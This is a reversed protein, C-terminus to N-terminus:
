KQFHDKLKNLSKLFEKEEETTLGINGKDRIKHRIFLYMVKHMEHRVTSNEDLTDLYLARFIISGLCLGGFVSGIIAATTFSIIDLAALFVIVATLVGSLYSVAMTLSDHRFFSWAFLRNIYENKSLAYFIIEWLNFTKKDKM